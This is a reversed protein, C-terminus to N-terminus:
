LEHCQYVPWDHSKVSIYQGNRPHGRSIICSTVHALTDPSQGSAGATLTVGDESLGVCRMQNDSLPFQSPLPSHSAVRLLCLCDMTQTWLLSESPTQWTNHLYEPTVREEGQLKLSGM